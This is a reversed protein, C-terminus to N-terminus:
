YHGINSGRITSRITGSFHMNNSSFSNSLAWYFARRRREADVGLSWELGWGWFVIGM